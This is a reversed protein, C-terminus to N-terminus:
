KKYYEKAQEYYEVVTFTKLLDPNEGYKNPISLNHLNADLYYRNKVSLDYKPDMFMVWFHDNIVNLAIQGKCVPGRIYTMIVYHIDDLLFQYRSNAPIQKFTRLSNTSINYDYTPMHPPEIWKPNIFLEKYRELKKENIEYVM